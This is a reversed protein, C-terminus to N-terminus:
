KGYRGLTSGIPSLMDHGHSFPVFPRHYAWTFQAVIRTAVNEDFYDQLAMNAIELEAQHLSQIGQSYGTMEKFSIASFDHLIQISELQSIHLMYHLKWIFSNYLALTELNKLEDSSSKVREIAEDISYEEKQFEQYMEEIKEVVGKTKITEKWKDWDIEPVEKGPPRNYWQLLNKLQFLSDLSEPSRSTNEIKKMWNENLSMAKREDYPVLDTSFKAKYLFLLFKSPSKAKQLM